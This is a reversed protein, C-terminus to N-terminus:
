LFGPKAPSKQKHSVANQKSSKREQRPVASWILM